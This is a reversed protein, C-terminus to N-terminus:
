LVTVGFEIKFVDETFGSADLRPSGFIGVFAARPDTAVAEELSRRGAVDRLEKPLRSLADTYHIDEVVEFTLFTTTTKKQHTQTVTVERASASLAEYVAVEDVKRDALVSPEFSVELKGTFRVYAKPTPSKSGDLGRALRVLLEKYDGSSLMGATAATAYADTWVKPSFEPARDKARWVGDDGRHEYVARLYRSGDGGCVSQLTLRTKGYANVSISRIVQPSPRKESTM